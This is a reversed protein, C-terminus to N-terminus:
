EDGDGLSERNIVATTTFVGQGSLEHVAGTVMYRGSMSQDEEITDSKGTSRRYQDPATAKPLIVEIITGPSLMIDGNITIDHTVTQLLQLYSQNKQGVRHKADTMSSRGGYLGHQTYDFNLNSFPMQNLEREVSGMPVFLDENVPYKGGITSELKIGNKSSYDFIDYRSGKTTIDMIASLSSYSGSTANDVHSLGLSSTLNRIRIMEEYPNDTSSIFVKDYYRRYTPNSKPDALFSLSSLQIDGSLTQFLFFPAGNEDSLTASLDRAHKIPSGWPLIGRYKQSSSGNVLFREKEFGLDITILKEIERVTSGTLARSVKMLPSSYLHRSVAVMTYTQRQADEPRHFETFDTVYFELDISADYAKETPKFFAQKAKIKVIESGGLKFDEFFNMTDILTFELILGTTYISETIRFSYIMSRVDKIDGLGNIIDFSELDITGVKTNGYRDEINLKSGM